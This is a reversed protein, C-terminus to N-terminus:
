MWHHCGWIEIEILFRKKPWFLFFDIAFFRITNQMRTVGRTPSKHHQISVSGMQTYHLITKSSMPRTCSGLPRYSAKQFRETFYPVQPHTFGKKQPNKSNKLFTPPIPLRSFFVMLFTTFKVDLSPLGM